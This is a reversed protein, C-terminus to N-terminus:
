PLTPEVSFTVRLEGSAAETLWIGTGSRVIRLDEDATSPTRWEIEIRHPERLTEDDVLQEVIALYAANNVHGFQDEDTRRFRWTSREGDPVDKAHRLKADVERGGAAELYSNAFEDGWRAPRGTATDLHIWVVSADIRAGAASRMSTRREAWRRGTASCWTSIDLVERATAPTHVEITARRAVWALGLESLGADDTDDNGADQLFRAIADLEMRGSPSADDISVTRRTRYVRGTEPEDVM